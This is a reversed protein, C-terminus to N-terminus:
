DGCGERGHPSGVQARRRERSSARRCTRGPRRHRIRDGSRPAFADPLVAKISAGCAMTATRADARTAPAHRVHRAGRPSLAAVRAPALAYSNSKTNPSVRRYEKPRGPRRRRRVGGRAATPVRHRSIGPTSDTPFGPQRQAAAHDFYRRPFKNQGTRQNNIVGIKRVDRATQAVEQRGGSALGIAVVSDVGHRFVESRPSDGRPPSWAEEAASVPMEATEIRSSRIGLLPARASAAKMDALLLRNGRIRVVVLVGQVDRFESPGQLERVPAGIRRRGAEVRAFSLAPVIAQNARATGTIRARAAAADDDHVFEVRRQMRM